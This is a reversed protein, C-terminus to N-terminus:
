FKTPHGYKVLNEKKARTWRKIQLERRRAELSTDFEETYVVNIPRRHKTYRSGEGENHRKIRHEIDETYGVYLSNDSCRALYIFHKSM